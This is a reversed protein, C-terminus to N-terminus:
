WCQMCTDELDLPEEGAGKKSERYLLQSPLCEGRAEELIGELCCTNLSGAFIRSGIEFPSFVLHPGPIWPRQKLVETWQFYNVEQTKKKLQLSPVSYM